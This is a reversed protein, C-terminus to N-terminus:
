RKLVLDNRHIIEARGIYGLTNFVEDSQRGIIQRANESSFASMGHGIVDGDPSLISVVDGRAFNGDVTSVGIPLLSKGNQLAEFAGEDVHLAGKPNLHSKIWTKRANESAAQGKFITCRAQPLANLAHDARGDCIVLDVGGQTASLAAEMKSKMGGTSLGPKAEGAMQVHKDEINDVLPIHAANPDDDPNATYLGDVTSMLIVLDADVMHAVRVALRDNDGFRLEGTSVADNENIVPVINQGMLTWLTERANLYNRRNETEGITLLVQAAKINQDSLAQHYGHFAYYQGVASAAQKQALPIRAPPMDLPVGLDKRGLAVAGSSVVIVNKGQDILGKVDSAFANLWGQKIEGRSADTLLASGIKIVITSAAELSHALDENMTFLSM